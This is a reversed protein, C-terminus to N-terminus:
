LNRWLKWSKGSRKLCDQAKEISLLHLYEFWHSFDYYICYNLYRSEQQDSSSPRKKQEWYEKLLQPCLSVPIITFEGTNRKQQLHGSAAEKAAQLLSEFGSDSLLLVEEEDSELWEVFALFKFFSLRAFIGRSRDERRRISYMSDHKGRSGM